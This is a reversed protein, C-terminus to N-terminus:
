PIFPRIVTLAQDEQYPVVSIAYVMTMRMPAANNLLISIEMIIVSPATIGDIRALTMPMGGMIVTFTTKSFPIEM